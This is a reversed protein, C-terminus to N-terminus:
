MERCEIEEIEIITRPPRNHNDIATIILQRNVPNSFLVTAEEVPGIDEPTEM